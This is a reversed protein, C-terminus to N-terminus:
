TTPIKLVQGIRINDSTLQNTERILDMPIAYSSAIQSLTEGSKIKHETFRTQVAVSGGAGPIVLKKGVQITNNKLNNASKLASLSMGYREAILSLSDGRQVTYTTTLQPLDHHEKQWAILTGEPPRDYFWGSIGEALAGAFRKRWAASDLNRADGANTIYGSEVLLSPIGASKLVVFAAQEVNKRRLTVVNDLSGLLKNGIELSTSVSATMSLDILVSRLVADKDSFSVNGVGGILDAANEKEAVLRAQESTSGRESLAYLTIGQANKNSHADAHIAIFLDADNHHAIDVQQRLGVYYDSERVLVARFGPMSNIISALERSIALVVQKEQLRNVGIAGPDEGGHGPSIVIVIDDKKQELDTASSTVIKPQTDGGEVVDYLDIVLREGYQENSGLMFSRPQVKNELDLVFRVDTDNRGAHRIAAIPTDALDLNNFQGEVSTNLLDIVVRNPNDLTFIKHELGADLDFVLRTYQPSRYTRVSEVVAAQVSLAACLHLLSGLAAIYYRLSM